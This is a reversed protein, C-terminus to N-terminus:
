KFRSYPVIFFKLWYWYIISGLPRLNRPFGMFHTNAYSSFWYHVYLWISIWALQSPLGVLLTPAKRSTKCNAKPIQYVKWENSSRNNCLWRVQFIQHNKGSPQISHRSNPKVTLGAYRKAMIDSVAHRVKWHGIRACISQTQRYHWRIIHKWGVHQSSDGCNDSECGILQWKCKVAHNSHSCSIM